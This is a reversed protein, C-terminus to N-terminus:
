SRTLLIRSRHAIQYASWFYPHATQQEQSISAMAHQLASDVPTGQALQKYLALMLQQTTRSDVDWQTALVQAAGADLFIRAVSSVRDVDDEREGVTRCAAIVALYCRALSHPALEVATRAAPSMSDAQALGHGSYHLVEARRLLGPLTDPGSFAIGKGTRVLRVTELTAHPYQASLEKTEDYVAPLPDDRDLAGRLLLFGGSRLKVPGGAPLPDGLSAAPHAYSVAHTIGLFGGDLPLAAFPLSILSEDVDLEVSPAHSLQEHFPELLEHSLRQGLLDLDQRSSRPDACLRAFIQVTDELAQPDQSIRQVRTATGSAVIWGVYHDELRAFILHVTDDAPAVSVMRDLTAGSLPAHLPQFPANRVWSWVALGATPRHLDNLDAILVQYTRVNSELWGTRAAPTGLNSLATEAGNTAQWAKELSAALDGKTRLLDAYETYFRTRPTVMTLHEFQPEAAAMASLAEGLGRRKANLGARDIQWDARYLKVAPAAGLASLAQDAESFSKAAADFDGADLQAVALDELAYALVRNNGSTAATKAGEQALGLVTFRLRNHRAVDEMDHLIQFKRVGQDHLDATSRLAATGIRLSSEFRGAAIQNVMLFGAARMGLGPLMFMQAMNVANQSEVTAAADDGSMGHCSSLELATSVRIAPYRQLLGSKRLLEAERLCPQAQGISQLGYIHQLRARLEGSLNHAQKFLVSAAASHSMTGDSDGGDYARLAAALEKEATIETATAPNALMDALWTDHRERGLGATTLLAQKIQPSGTGRQPLWDRLAADVFREYDEPRAQSVVAPDMTEHDSHLGPRMEDLYTHLARLRNLHAEIVKRWAQDKENRHAAEYDAIARGYAGKHEWALARDFLAVTDASNASLYQSFLEIARDYESQSQSLEALAFHAGALDFALQPLHPDLVQAMEFQRLAESPNHQVLAIRGLMQRVAPTNPDREFQEQTSLKLKLLATSTASAAESGRTTSAIDGTSSGHIRLEFPRAADYAQALLRDAGTAQYRPLGFWLSLAVCVTAFSAAPLLWWRGSWFGAKPEPRRENLRALRNATHESGTASSSPLCALLIEEERTTEEAFLDKAHRLLAACSQCGASHDLLLFADEEPLVGACAQMCQDESWCVARQQEDRDPRVDRSDNAM